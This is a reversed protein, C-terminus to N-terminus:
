ISSPHAVIAAISTDDLHQPFLFPIPGLIASMKGRRRRLSIDLKMMEANELNLCLWIFIIPSQANRFLRTSLRGGWLHVSISELKRYTAVGPSIWRPFPPKNHCHDVISTEEWVLTRQQRWIRCGTHILRYGMM